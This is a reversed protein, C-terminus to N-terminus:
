AGSPARLGEITVRGLAYDAAWRIGNVQHNRTPEVRLSAQTLPRLHNIPVLYVGGTEPCFVAFYDIQGKYHKAPTKPHPHHYYSSATRFCV